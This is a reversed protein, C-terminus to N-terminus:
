EVSVKLPEKANLAKESLIKTWADFNKVVYKDWAGGWYYDLKEGPKITTCGLVHGNAGRENAENEDFLALKAETLPNVFTAGVFIKGFGDDPRDTPDVYAVYGEEKKAEGADLNGSFYARNTRIAFDRM